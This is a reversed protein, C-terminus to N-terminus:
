AEELVTQWDKGRLELVRERALGDTIRNVLVPAITVRALREELEAAAQGVKGDPTLLCVHRRM